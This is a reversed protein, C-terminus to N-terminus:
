DGLTFTVDYYAGGNMYEAVSDFVLDFTHEGVGLEVEHEYTYPSSFSGPQDNLSDYFQGATKYYDIGYPSSGGGQSEGNLNTGYIAVLPDGGPFKNTPIYGLGNIPHNTTGVGTYAGVSAVEGGKLYQKKTPDWKFIRVPGKYYNEQNAWDPALVGLQPAMAKIMPTTTNNVTHDITLTQLDGRSNQFNNYLYEDRYISEGDNGYKELLIEEENLLNNNTLVNGVADFKPEYYGLLVEKLRKDEDLYIDWIDLNSDMGLGKISITLTKPSGITVTVKSTAKQRYFYHHAYLYGEPSRYGNYGFKQIFEDTQRPELAGDPYNTSGFLEILKQGGDKEFWLKITCSKCDESRSTEFPNERHTAKYISDTYRLPDGIVKDPHEAHNDATVWEVPPTGRMWVYLFNKAITNVYREECYNSPGDVVGCLVDKTDWNYIDGYEFGLQFGSGSKKLEALFGVPAYGDHRDVIGDEDVDENLSEFECEGNYDETWGDIDGHPVGKIFKDKSADRGSIRDIQVFPTQLNANGHESVSGDNKNTNITEANYDEVLATELELCSDPAPASKGGLTKWFATPFPQM